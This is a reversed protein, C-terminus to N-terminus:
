TNVAQNNFIEDNFPGTCSIPHPTVMAASPATKKAKTSASGARRRIYTARILLIDIGSFGSSCM